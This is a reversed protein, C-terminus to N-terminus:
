FKRTLSKMYKKAMMYAINQGDVFYLLDEVQVCSAIGNLTCLETIVGGTVPVCYLKSLSSLIFYQGEDIDYVYIKYITEPLQEVIYKFLGPRTEISGEGFSIVNMLDPSETSDLEFAAKVNNLKGNYNTIAFPQENVVPVKLNQIFPM